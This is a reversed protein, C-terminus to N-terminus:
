VHLKNGLWSSSLSDSAHTAAISSEGFGGGLLIVSVSGTTVCAFLSANTAVPPPLFSIKFCIRSVSSPRFKGHPKTLSLAPSLTLQNVSELATSPTFKGLLPLKYTSRKKRIVVKIIFISRLGLNYSSNAQSLGGTEVIM